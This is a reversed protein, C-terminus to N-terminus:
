GYTYGDVGNGSITYSKDCEFCGYETTRTNRDPNTNNGDKDYKPPYYAATVSTTGETIETPVKCHPCIPIPGTFKVEM